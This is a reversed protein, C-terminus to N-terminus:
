FNDAVMKSYEYLGDGIKEFEGVKFIGILLSKSNELAIFSVIYDCNFVDTEQEKQFELLNERNNNLDKLGSIGKFERHRIFKVKSKIFINSRLGLIEQITIM